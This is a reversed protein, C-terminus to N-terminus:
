RAESLLITKCSDYSYNSRWARPHVWPGIAEILRAFTVGDRARCAFSAFNNLNWKSDPYRSLLDEFGKKMRPWDARSEDFLNGHVQTGDYSWYLRAYMSEGDTARTAEVTQNVFEDFRDADGGWKPLLHRTKAFYFVFFDPFRKIAESYLEDFKEDPWGEDIAISMMHYYWLPNSAAFSRSEELVGRAKALREHFLTSNEPAVSDAFGTGRANWAYQYWFISKALAAATSHPYAQRHMAALDRYADWKDQEVTFYACLGEYYAQMEFRGDKFRRKEKWWGQLTEDLDDIRGTLWAVSLQRGNQAIAAPGDNDTAEPIAAALALAPCLLLLILMLHKRM